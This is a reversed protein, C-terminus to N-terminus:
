CPCRPTSARYCWWEAMLTVPSTKMPTTNIYRDLLIIARQCASRGNAFNLRNSIGELKLGMLRAITVCTALTIHAEQPLSHGCEYYTIFLGAQLLELTPRGCAQLMFAQKNTRYSLSCMSHNSDLCPQRTVHYLAWLLTALGVGGCQPWSLLSSRLDDEDVIPLHRHITAFYDDVLSTITIGAAELFESILRALSSSIVDGSSAQLLERAGYASLDLCSPCPRV